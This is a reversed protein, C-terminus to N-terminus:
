RASSGGPTRTKPWSSRCRGRSAASWVFDPDPPVMRGATLLRHIAEADNRDRLRRVRFGRPQVRATRYNFFWLRYTHSPDLFLEQPAMALVVHPDRLYLGIDRRGEQEELLTRALVANDGFTHAFVLRGWGCDVVADPQLREGKHRPDIRPSAACPRRARGSWGTASVIRRRPSARAPRASAAGLTKRM